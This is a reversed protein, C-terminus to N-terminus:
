KDQLDDLKIALQNCMAHLLGKGIDRNRNKLTTFKKGLYLRGHNTFTCCLGQEDAYRKLKKEFEYGNMVPTWERGKTEYM